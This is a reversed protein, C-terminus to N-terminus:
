KRKGKALSFSFRITRRIFRARSRLSTNWSSQGKYRPGFRVPLRMVKANLEKAKAFAFLDLAFDDPGGLVVDLLDRSFITPQANIDDLKKRFLLSEFVTMGATFLRDGIPRGYRKGKVFITGNGEVVIKLARVADFPDCQLDAHTWGVLDGTAYQLGIKIGYGYGQNEPVKILIFDPNDRTLANLKQYTDDHSGNDVFIIRLNPSEMKAFVARDILNAINEAENFCPIVLDLQLDSGANQKDM